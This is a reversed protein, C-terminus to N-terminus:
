RGGKTTSELPGPQPNFDAGRAVTRYTMRFDSMLFDGNPDWSANPFVDFIRLTLPGMEVMRDAIRFNPITENSIVKALWAPTENWFVTAVREGGHSPLTNFLLGDCAQESSEVFRLSSEDNVHTRSVRRNERSDDVFLTTDSSRYDDLEGLSCTPQLPLGAGLRM